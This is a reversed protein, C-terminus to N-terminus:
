PCGGSCDQACAGGGTNCNINCPNGSNCSVGLACSGNGNCSLQGNDTNLTMDGGQCSGSGNCSLNCNVANCDIGGHCSGDGSCNVTFNTAGGHVARSGGNRNSCGGAGCEVTCSTAHCEVGAKCADQGCQVECSEAGDVPCVVPGACSDAGSCSITCDFGDPCRIEESCA